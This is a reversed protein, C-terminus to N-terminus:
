PDTGAIQDRVEFMVTSLTDRLERDLKARSGLLLARTCLTQVDPREPRSKGGVQVKEFSYVPTGDPLSLNPVDDTTIAVFRYIDRNDLVVQIPRSERSPRQVLMVGRLRTFESGTKLQLLAEMIPEYVPQTASFEPALSTMAKYTVAAGSGPGGVSLTGAPRQKLDAASQVEGAQSAILLVCEKGMDGLVFFEERFDDNENLYFRLADAQVLSVNVPSSADRLRMINELSGETAELVPLTEKRLILETKLREGIRFYNGGQMGAAIVIRSRALAPLAAALIVVVAVTFRFSQFRSM